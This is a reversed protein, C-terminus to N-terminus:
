IAAKNLTASLMARYMNEALDWSSRENNPDELADAMASTMENTPTIPVLLFGEHVPAPQAAKLRDIEDLMDKHLKCLMARYPTDPLCQESLTCRAILSPQGKTIGHRKESDTIGVVYWHRAEGDIGHAEAMGHVEAPSIPAPAPQAIGHRYIHEALERAVHKNVGVRLLNVTVMEMWKVPVPTPQAASLSGEYAPMGNCTAPQAAPKSKGIREPICGYKTCHAVTECQECIM